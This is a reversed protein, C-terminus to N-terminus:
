GNDIVGRNLRSEAIENSSLGNSVIAQGLDEVVITQHANAETTISLSVNDTTADDVEEFYVLL